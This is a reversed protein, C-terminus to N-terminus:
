IKTAQKLVRHVAVTQFCCAGGVLAADEALTARVIEPIKRLQKKLVDQVRIMFVDWANAINGGVVLVEPDEATIFRNLFWVLHESFLAFAQVAHKDTKCLAALKEVDKLEKGTLNKYFKLLARASVFEEIMKGNTYPTVSLEADVTVANHSIASGLGTGLTIGIAHQYGKAAGGHLEGALFAEADNRFRIDATQLLLAEALYERINMGYLSEYKDFGKILCIGKEYDFPGPMAFGVQEVVCSSNEFVQKITSVWVELIHDAAGKSNLKSRIVSSKVVKVENMEILGATIHSGGIDVGVVFHENGMSIKKMNYFNQWGVLEGSRDM